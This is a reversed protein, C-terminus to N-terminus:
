FLSKESLHNTKLFKRQPLPLPLLFSTHTLTRVLGSPLPVEWGRIFGGVCAGCAYTKMAKNPKVSTDTVFGRLVQAKKREGAARQIGEEM